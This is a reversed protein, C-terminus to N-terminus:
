KNFVDKWTYTKLQTFMNHAQKHDYDWVKQYWGNNKRKELPDDDGGEDMVYMRKKPFKRNHALYINKIIFQPVAGGYFKILANQFATDEHVLMISKPINVGSKVIDSSIVLGCGNFKYPNVVRVDLDDVKDNIKNVEDISTIYNISWWNDKDGHIFPKDTFDTHEISKWGDDWMKNTGFFAVYKYLNNNVNNHHLANLVYFTQRPILADSEGWMLVDVETCYKNNFERRYDAISFIKDKNYYEINYNINKEKLLKETNKFRTKIDNMSILSTDLKEINESLYFCLDVIVNEKNDIYNIANIVSDIYNEYMEVEYWQIICGIAIKTEKM